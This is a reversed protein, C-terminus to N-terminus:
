GQNDAEALMMQFEQFSMFGSSRDAFSEILEEDLDLELVVHEQGSHEDRLRTLAGALVEWDPAGEFRGTAQNWHALDAFCQVIHVDVSALIETLKETKESDLKSSLVVDLVESVDRIISDRLVAAKTLEDAPFNEAGAGTPFSEYRLDSAAVPSGGGEPPPEIQETLGITESLVPPPSKSM